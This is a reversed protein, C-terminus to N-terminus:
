QMSSYMYVGEGEEHREIGMALFLSIFVIMAMNLIVVIIQDNLISKDTDVSDEM